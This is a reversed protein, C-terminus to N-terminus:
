LASQLGLARAYAQQYGRTTATWNREREVFQRANKRLAPWDQQNQILDLIARVFDGKDDARFLIGTKGTQVLERHGGVDSALVIGGRAMAELPKLPTVTETLRMRHRPYVFIDVLDYYNQILHHPVRGIFRVADELGLSRAQDKLAQESPGGGVLLAVASPQEKRIAPLASLLLDLGEYAYFSGLFGLVIKGDLKFSARVAMDPTPRFPFEEVDVGNPTVTIRNSPIGRQLMDQRLGECITAVADCKRLAFTELAHTARYRLGGETATGHSVAADEWFGRVEYVVPVRLNRAALLCALATLVPSHAHLIQPQELAAVQEIRRAVARILVLEKLVPVRGIAPSLLPTRHFVFGDIEEPSPGAMTHKPTTLHATYWGRRRQERFLAVSRFSYGSHMPLSHDLVHLIRLGQPLPPVGPLNRATTDIPKPVEPM